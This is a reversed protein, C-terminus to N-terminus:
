GILTREWESSQYTTAWNEPILSQFDIARFYELRHSCCFLLIHWNLIKRITEGIYKYIYLMQLNLVSEQRNKQLTM